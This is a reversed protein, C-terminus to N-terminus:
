PRSSVTVELVEQGVLSCFGSKTSFIFRTRYTATTSIYVVVEIGALSESPDAPNRIPTLKKVSDRDVDLLFNSASTGQSELHFRVIKESFEIAQKSCAIEKAEIQSNLALFALAALGMKLQFFKTIM